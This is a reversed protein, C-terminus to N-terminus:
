AMSSNILVVPARPVMPAPKEPPPPVDGGVSPRGSVSSSTRSATGASAASAAAAGTPAAPAGVAEAAKAADAAKNSTLEVTSTKSQELRERWEPAVAMAVGISRVRESEDESVLRNEFNKLIRYHVREAERVWTGYTFHESTRLNAVKWKAEAATSLWRGLLAMNLDYNNGRRVHAAIRREWLAKDRKCFHVAIVPPILEELAAWYAHIFSLEDVLALLGPLMEGAPRSRSFQSQYDTIKQLIVLFRGNTLMRSSQRVKQHTIPERATIPPFVEDTAANIAALCFAQFDAWWDFFSEIVDHTLLSKKRQMVDLLAYLDMFERRMANHLFVVVDRAWDGDGYPALVIRPLEAM